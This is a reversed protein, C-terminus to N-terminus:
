TARFDDLRGGIGTLRVGVGGPRLIATDRVVVLPIRNFSLSLRGGVVDFGLVGSGRPAMRAGLLRWAGAVNRWIEAVFGAPRRVIRGLLMNADGDGGHRAVLGVAQGVVPQVVVTARLRVDAVTVGRVTMLSNGPRTSIAAGASLAIGGAQEVWAARSVPGATQQFGDTFPLTVAVPPPAPAPAPLPAVVGAAVLAAGADLRGGTVVKGALSAVPTTSGLIAARIDAVSIGPKAAALLAVTGTVQPAAMSTGSLLGYTGGPFTSQILSGPAALDVTRVGYNSMSALTDGPALAAVSIVGPLDYTAPYRPVLDNDSANNGAAAVFVVGAAAASRIADEVVLSYGAASQWSANAAVINVGHDRRMMTLYHIAKLIASTSGVGRDDEVKLPLLSVQWCVGAVGVGNGGVAGIIGAVHTGHGYGDAVQNTDDVFNWGHVDDVYGNGDDDRGDASADGPNSWINAALDPHTIDIGSDIVAVVVSRSGTTLSWAGAANVDAGITGAYQGTNRLHWQSSLLPDNPWSAARLVLDPELRTVAPTAAAWALVDARAAGPTSLSFAGGGLAVSQWDPHSVAFPAAFVRGGAPVAALAAGEPRDVAAQWVWRDSRAEVARGQWDVITEAAANAAVPTVSFPRRPELREPGAYRDGGRRTRRRRSATWSRADGPRRM